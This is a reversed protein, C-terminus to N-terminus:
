MRVDLYNPLFKYNKVYKNVQKLPLFKHMGQVQSGDCKPLCSNILSVEKQTLNPVDIKYVEDSYKIFNFKSEFVSKQFDKSQDLLIGGWTIMPAGDEYDFFYLQQFYLETKMLKNRANLISNIKNTLTHRILQLKSPKPILDKDTAEFPVFEGFRERFEDISSYKTGDDQKLDSNCSFIYFSNKKLFNFVADIDHLMSKNLTDDYDLWVIKEDEWDLKPLGVSTTEMKVDICNFPLNFNIRDKTIPRDDGEFSIMSEVNLEKHFLIFDTFYPSGLGIYQYDVVNLTRSIELISSALMRRETHKAPRLSYNIKDFSRM